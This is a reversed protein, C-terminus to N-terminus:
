DGKGGLKGRDGGCERVGKRKGGLRKRENEQRGGWIPSLVFRLMHLGQTPPYGRPWVSDAPWAAPRSLFGLHCHM